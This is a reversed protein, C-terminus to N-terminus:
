DFVLKGDEGFFYDGAPLLGNAKATTVTRLGNKKIKGNYIVYYYDDGIQVLGKDKVIVGDERYYGDDGISPGLVPPNTMKGDEGFHYTGAPVLGNAKEATVTRDGDKKIKGNYIVYYYDDGDKILGKDAVIVGNERYYGDAGIGDLVPVNTMKGDPGFHYLGAPLLGNAKETTVTRDADKKIKGTYVVYYYDDGINILGKDKVIEGNEWYYGNEDIGNQIPPNTMKGDEGFNYTGPDLLGNAKAATVTRDGNRKLSGDYIAYYYNGEFLILGYDATSEGNEHVYYLKSNQEIIQPGTLKTAKGDEGCDYWIPTKENSRHNSVIGTARYGGEDFLYTDGHVEQELYAVNRSNLHYYTPGYWYRYKGITKEWAGDLVKGNEFEFTVRSSNTWSGDVGALTTEDFLYWDDDVEFWGSSLVGLKAYYNVGDIDVLGTYKGLSTGNEFEYYTDDIKVIGDYNQDVGDIYYKGNVFGEAVVGDFYQKGDVVENCLVNDVTCVMKGNEKEPAEPMEFTFQEEGYDNTGISTMEIGPWESCTTTNDDFWYYITPTGFWDPKTFTITNSTSDTDFTMYTNVWNESHVYYGIGGNYALEDSADNGSNSIKFYIKKKEIAYSHGTAPIVHGWDVVSNCVTCYTRGSFGDETCTAAVPEYGDVYVIQDDTTHNTTGDAYYQATEARHDHGGNWNKYYDDSAKANDNDWYISETRVNVEDGTFIETSNDTFTVQGAAAKVIVNVPWVENGAKYKNYMWVTGAHGYDAAVAPLEWTRIPMSILADGDLLAIADSNRTITLKAINEDANVISYSADFGQAVEMHDLEWNSLNDLDLDVDIASISAADLAKVNVWYLSGLLIKDLSPDKAEIWVPQDKATNAVTFTRIASAYNGNNDEIAFKVTHQGNTYVKTPATIIGNTFTCPFEVGDLYVKATAANLGTANAAAYDAVRASLDIRNYGDSTYNSGRTLVLGENSYNGEDGLKVETFVPADRDEVVSSYDVTVDDIYLNLDANGNTYNLHNYGYKDGNRDNIYFDLLCHNPIICWDTDSSLDFYVYHWGPEDYQTVFGCNWDGGQDILTATYYGQWNTVAGTEEDRETVKCMFIRGNFSADAVPIYMWMGIRTAGKLDIVEDLGYVGARGSVYGAEWTESFKAELKLAHEGSHVQGTEATVNSTTGRTRIYNYNNTNYRVWKQTTGDEFDFLVVSAKGFAINATTSKTNDAILTATVVNGTAGSDESPAVMAGDVIQGAGDATELTYEFDAPKTVVDNLGYKAVIGLDMSKGYPVTFNEQAFAISDPIVANFTASGVEDNGLMAKIVVEGAEGATVTNGDVSGNEAVYTVEEPIDASAGSTSVGSATFTTATGPTVYDDAVSFAVHDFVNSPAALSAILVGSSISRESGDSPRNVVKFSDEGEPRAGFTTSGGGDLNIAMVCEAEIMIQALEQMTGGDSFPSQRGDVVVSVVKNDATVGIMTRSARTTNYDGGIAASVDEGNNVLVASGGVSNQVAGHAAIAANYDTNNYGCLATGDEFIAFWPRNNAGNMVHGNIAFAGSPRGTQMNYFDGNTGAVVTYNESIFDENDPDSFKANAAAAQETLKAMGYQETQENWYGGQVLVDDRNIDAIAAYYVVQEGDKLYAYNNYYEVGPALTQTYHKFVDHTTSVYTADYASASISFVSLVMVLSLVLALVRRSTKQM